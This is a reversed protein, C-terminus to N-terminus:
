DGWGSVGEPLPWIRLSNRAFEEGRAKLQEEGWTENAAIRHNMQFLSDLYWDRKGKGDPSVFPRNSMASNTKTISLNALTHLWRKHIREWEPGLMAKWAQGRDDNGISQPMVHEITADDDIRSEPHEYALDLRQLMLRCGGWSVEYIPVENIAQAFKEDGPWDPALVPWVEGPTKPRAKCLEEFRRALINTRWGCALRRVFFSELGEMVLDVGGAPFDGARARESLQLFFPWHVNYGLVQLRQYISADGSVPKPALLREYGKSLDELERLQDVAGPESRELDEVFTRYTRWGDVRRGSRMLVHRIYESVIREKPSSRERRQRDPVADRLRAEMPRWYRNDYTQQDSLTRFQALLVTRVLDAQSLRLGTTNLSEFVTEADESRDLTV